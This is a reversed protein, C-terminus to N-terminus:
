PAKPQMEVRRWTIAWSSASSLEKMLAAADLKVDNIGVIRDDAHLALEPGEKMGKTHTYSGEEVNTVVLCVQDCPEASIGLWEGKGPTCYTTHEIGSTVTVKLETAGKCSALMQQTNGKIGNLEIIRDGPLLQESKHTANHDMVPGENIKTVLLTVNDHYNIDIGLKREGKDISTSFDRSATTTTAKDEKAQPPPAAPPGPEPAAPPPAPTFSDLQEASEEKQPPSFDEVVTPKPEKLNPSLTADLPGQFGPASRNQAPQKVEM